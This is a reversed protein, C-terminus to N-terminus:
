KRVECTLEVWGTNGYPNIHKIDYKENKYIVINDLYISRRTFLLFIVTQTANERNSSIYENSSQYKIKCRLKYLKQTDNSKIGLRNSSKIVKHIECVDKLEGINFM